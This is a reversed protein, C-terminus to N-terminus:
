LNSDNTVVIHLAQFCNCVFDDSMQTNQPLVCDAILKVFNLKNEGFILTLVNEVNLNVKYCYMLFTMWTASIVKNRMQNEQKMFANLKEYEFFPCQIVSFTNMDDSEYSDFVAM